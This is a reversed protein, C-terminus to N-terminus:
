PFYFRKVVTPGGTIQTDKAPFAFVADIKLIDKRGALEKVAFEFADLSDISEIDINAEKFCNLTTSSDLDRSAIHFGMFRITM